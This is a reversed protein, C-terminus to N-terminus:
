GKELKEILIKIEEIENESYRKDITKGQLEKKLQTLVKKKLGNAEKGKQNICLGLAIFEQTPKIVKGTYVVNMVAYYRGKALVPTESKIEYGNECLWIRLYDNKSAPVFIFNLLNNKVWNVSSLIKSITIGSLGAIVIDNVENEKLALLGDGLRCDIKENLELKLIRTKAKNLPEVNVDIAIVKKAINNQVLFVSLKGHDCGIDAVISNNNIYKSVALLREDIKQLQM